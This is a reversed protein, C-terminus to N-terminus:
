QETRKFSKKILLMLVLVLFLLVPMLVLTSTFIWFCRSAEIGGRFADHNQFTFAWNGAFLFGILGWLLALIVTSGFAIRIIKHVSINARHIKNSILYITFTFAILGIWSVITGLPFASEKFLPVNLIPSGTVILFLCSVFIILSLYPITKM